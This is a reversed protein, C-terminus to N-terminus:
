EYLDPLTQEARYVPIVISVSLMLSITRNEYAIFSARM